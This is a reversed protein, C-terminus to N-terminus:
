SPKLGRESVPKIVGLGGIRQNSFVQLHTAIVAVLVAIELGLNRVFRAGVTVFRIRVIALKGLPRITSPTLTAMSNLTPARRGEGRSIMRLGPKRKDSRVGPDLTRVAVNRSAFLGLELDTICEANITVLIFVVTLKGSCGPAIAAFLTM